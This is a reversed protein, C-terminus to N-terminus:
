TCQVWLLSNDQEQGEERDEPRCEEESNQWIGWLHLRCICMMLVRAWYALFLKSFTGQGLKKSLTFRDSIKLTEKM